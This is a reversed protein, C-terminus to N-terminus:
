KGEDAGEGGIKPLEIEGLIAIRNGPTPPMLLPSGSDLDDILKLEIGLTDKLMAQVSLIEGAERSARTSQYAESVDEEDFSPTHYEIVTNALRSRCLGITEGADEDAKGEVYSDPILSAIVLKRVDQPSFPLNDVNIETALAISKLHRELRLVVQKYDKPALQKFPYVDRLKCIRDPLEVYGSPMRVSRPKAYHRMREMLDRPETLLAESFEQGTVGLDVKKWPNPSVPDGPTGMPALTDNYTRDPRDLQVELTGDVLIRGRNVRPVAEPFETRLFETDPIVPCPSVRDFELNRAARGINAYLRPQEVTGRLKDLVWNEFKYDQKLIKLTRDWIEFAIGKYVLSDPNNDGQISIAVRKGLKLAPLLEALTAACSRASMEVVSNRLADRKESYSRLIKDEPTLTEEIEAGTLGAKEGDTIKCKMRVILGEKIRKLRADWVSQPEALRQEPTTLGEDKQKKQGVHQLLGNPGVIKEQYEPSNEVARLEGLLEKAKIGFLGKARASDVSLVFLPIVDLIMLENIKRIRKLQASSVQWEGNGTKEFRSERQTSVGVEESAKPVKSARVGHSIGVLRSRGETLECLKEAAETFIGVDVPEKDVGTTMYRRFLDVLRIRVSRRADFIEQTINAEFREITLSYIESCDGEFAGCSICGNRCGKGIEVMDIYTTDPVLSANVPVGASAETQSEAVVQAGGPRNSGEAPFASDGGIEAPKVVGQNGIEPGQGSGM